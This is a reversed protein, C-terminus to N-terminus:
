ILPMTIGLKEKAAPAGFGVKWGIRRAGAREREEFLAFQRRMGERIRPDDLGVTMFPEDPTVRPTSRMAPRKSPAREWGAGCWCWTRMRLTTSATGAAARLISWM